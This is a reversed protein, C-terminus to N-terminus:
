GSRPLPPSPQRCPAPRAGPQARPGVNGWRKELRLADMHDEYYDTHVGFERYGNGMYLAIAPTNDRRVELRLGTCDRAIAAQEAANLLRTAVGRGRFSPDVAFSYLRALPTGAHFAVMAYGAIVDAHLEVLVLANAKTIMHHFSRRTLHDTVFGREEIGLLAPIDSALAHRLTVPLPTIRLDIDDPMAYSILPVTKAHMRSEETRPSLLLVAM